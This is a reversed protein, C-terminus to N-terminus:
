PTSGLDPIVSVIDPFVAILAVVILVGPIYWAAGQYADGLTIETDGRVEPNQALRHTVFTLIGVPPTLIAVEAMLIFFVGFWIPEIGTAIAVPLLIPVTLLMMSLPEMFMGLLLYILVVVAIFQFRSLGADGVFDAFWRAAGSLSLLRNLLAAGMLLFFISGTSAVTDRLATLLGRGFEAPRMRAAAIVTAGIAGVAGAETATVYGLYIGGIVILLLAPLPWVELLAHGRDSWTPASRRAERDRDILRPFVTVYTITLGIYALTLVLGPLIGALLQAGVETEAYGAYVVAYISPPILQGITGAVMVSGLAIRKDYGAKLMEPIGIRGLAHTIGITSGSVSALGSGAVITTSSLGGPLWSVWQKAADYLQGTIGSRWLMIGMFVFLPLVTLTFSATSNYPLSGMSNVAALEGSIAYIGLVGSLGMAVAVPVRLMLLLLMLLCVVGGKVHNQMPAYLITVVLTGTVGFVILAPMWQSFSSSPRGGPSVDRGETALPASM